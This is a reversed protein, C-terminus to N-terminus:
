DPVYSPYNIETPTWDELRGALYAEYGALDLL